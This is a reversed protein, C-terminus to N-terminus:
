KKKILERCKFTSEIELQGYLWPDACRFIKKSRIPIPDTAKIKKQIPDPDSRYGWIKKPDSRSRIPRRLNKKSRIPIPDTREFHKQIPDPDSRNAWFFIPDSRSRIPIPDTKRFLRNGCMTLRSFIKFLSFNQMPVNKPRVQCM